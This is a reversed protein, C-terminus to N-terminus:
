CTPCHAGRAARRARRGAAYLRSQHHGPEDVAGICWHLEEPPVGIFRLFHRYWISGSAVWSYMRGAQRAPRCADEGAWGQACLSRPRHLQAAPFRLAILSRDGKDIRRLHGAMSSKGGHVTPDRRGRLMEARGAM